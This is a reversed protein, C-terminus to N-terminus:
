HVSANAPASAAASASSAPAALGTIQAQTTTGGLLLFRPKGRLCRHGRGPRGESPVPKFAPRMATKPADPEGHIFRQAHDVARRDVHLVVVGRITLGVVRRNM